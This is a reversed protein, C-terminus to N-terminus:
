ASGERGADEESHYLGRMTAWVGIQTRALRRAIEKNTLGAVILAAV